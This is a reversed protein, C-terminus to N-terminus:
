VQYCTKQINHQTTKKQYPQRHQTQIIDKRDKRKAGLRKKLAKTKEKVWTQQVNECPKM